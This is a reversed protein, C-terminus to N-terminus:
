GNGRRLKRGVPKSKPRGRGPREQHLRYQKNVVQFIFRAMTWGKAEAIKSLADWFEEEQIINKREM